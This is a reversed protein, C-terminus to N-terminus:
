THLRMFADVKELGKPTCIGRVIVCFYNIFLDKYNLDQFDPAESLMGIVGSFIRHYVKYDIAPMFFGENVGRRFFDDSTQTQGEYYDHLYQMARPFKHLDTFFSANTSSAFELQIRLAELLTDMTNDSNAVFEKLHESRKTFINTVVEILLDEKNTYLEYLTRKSIGLNKAIDDMKVARIGNERFNRSAEALINPKLQLKYSTHEKVIM